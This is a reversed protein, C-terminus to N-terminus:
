EQRSRRDKFEPANESLPPLSPVPPSPVPLSACCPIPSPGPSCSISSLPETLLACPGRDLFHPLGPGVRQWIGCLQPELIQWRGRGVGDSPESAPQGGSRPTTQAWGGRGRSHIELSAQTQGAAVSAGQSESSCDQGGLTHASTWLFPSVRLARCGSM